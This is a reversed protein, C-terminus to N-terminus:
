KRCGDQLKVTSTSRCETAAEVIDACEFILVLCCHCMLMEVFIMEMAAAVHVVVGVNVDAAVNGYEIGAIRNDANVLEIRSNMQNAADVHM